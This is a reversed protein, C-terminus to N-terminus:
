SLISGGKWGALGACEECKEGKRLVGVAFMQFHSFYCHSRAWGLNSKTEMDAHM